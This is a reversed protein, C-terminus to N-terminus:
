REGFSAGLSRTNSRGLFFAGVAVDIPFDVLLVALVWFRGDNSLFWVWRQMVKGRGPPGPLIILTKKFPIYDDKM